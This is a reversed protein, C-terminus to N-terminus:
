RSIPLRERLMPPRRSRSDRPRAERSPSRRSGAIAAFDGGSVGHFALPFNNPGICFVAGGLPGRDGHINTAEDLIPSRWSSISTDEAADAAQRLQGLMRDFEIQSLRPELPLGTEEHATAAIEGRKADLREAYSRLFGAIQAPDIAALAAAAEVSAEAMADLTSWDAIPHRAALSEGTSPNFAHFTDTMARITDVPGM